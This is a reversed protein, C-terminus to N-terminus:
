IFGITFDVIKFLFLLTTISEMRNENQNLIRKKMSLSWQSRIWVKSKLM